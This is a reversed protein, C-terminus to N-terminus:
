TSKSIDEPLDVELSLHPVCQGKWKNHFIWGGTKSKLEEAKSKIMEETVESWPCEFFMNNKATDEQSIDYLSQWHQSWYDRYTKIKREIDWWSFHYVTPLTDVVGKYWAKYNSLSEKDGTLALRKLEHVDQTFFSAFPIPNHTDQRIYDCGDSGPKSYLEGNEDYQRLSSPIGHTIVGDNRSLRWKWPNVDLRVKKEGGWFEVLPLAILKQSKDMEKAIRKIKDYDRELVLEDADMQWCFDGTCLKRAFAKQTGDFVGFRKASWNMANKHIKLKDENAALQELEEWTNDDSGGDVVIVEDCFQLMSKISHKYPYMHKECNLTTMYGSITPSYQTIYKITNWFRSRAMYLYAWTDEKDDTDFWAEKAHQVDDNLQLKCGLLEAEIVMRPCTDGGQPLYVFGEASSLKQLVEHYPLGWVVEYDKKNKKCWTEAENAGKIWSTSGLVIWGKKEDERYENLSKITAFSEDDFISSLVTNPVNFLFSFRDIYRQRQTEAMWWIHKAGLFLASILKGHNSEPCDCDNQTANKHKEISRYRCFKYDYEVIAYNLNAIITPIFDINMESFNTFVWFKRHGAELTELCVDSSKLKYVNMPSASILADTSLEAGGCYDDVFLDAVFVVDTKSINNCIKNLRNETNSTEQDFLSKEFNM